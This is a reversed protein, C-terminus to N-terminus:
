YVKWSEVKDANFRSTKFATQPVTFVRVHSGLVDGNTM